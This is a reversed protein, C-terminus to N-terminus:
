LCEPGPASRLLEPKILHIQSTGFAKDDIVRFAKEILGKADQRVMAVPFHLHSLFPDWDFCGVSLSRFTEDPLEKLVRFIGEFAITSNVFLGSPVAGLRDILTRLSREAEDPGYGCTDIQGPDPSVGTEAILVDRFGRVREMTNFDTPIGGIFHLTAPASKGVQTLLHRTLECAGFYNDTVVSAALSGPLDVNIHPIGAESCMRSLPDPDTAGAIFLLDVNHSLLKAVTRKEVDPDRLTSVVMPCLDRKRAEAEFAQSMSSFYRNDHLPLIMGILGSRQTRLASAQRNQRYGLTAAVGLVREALDKSIRRKSWTGNLIAGVTSASVGSATAVDYITTKRKPEM